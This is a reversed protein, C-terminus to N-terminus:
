KLLGCAQLMGDTVTLSLLSLTDIVLVSFLVDRFLFIILSFYQVRYMDDGNYYCIPVPNGAHM